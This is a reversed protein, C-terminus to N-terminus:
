LEPRSSALLREVEKLKALTADLSDEALRSVADGILASAAAQNIARQTNREARTVPPMAEVWGKLEAELAEKSTGDSKAKELRQILERTTELSYRRRELLQAVKESIGGTSGDAYIVARMQVYDPAAGVLMNTIAISREEGPAIPEGGADDQWFSFSSGPYDVLEILYATLAKGTPNRVHLVSGSDTAEVRLEPLPAESGYVTVALLLLLGCQKGKMFANHGAPPGLALWEAGTILDSSASCRYM